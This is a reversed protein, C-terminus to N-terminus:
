ATEQKGTSVDAKGWKARLSELAPSAEGRHDPKALRHSTPVTDAESHGGPKIMAISGPALVMGRLRILKVGQNVAAMIKEAESDSCPIETKDFLKIIM